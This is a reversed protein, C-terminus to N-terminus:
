KKVLKYGEAELLAKLNEFTPLTMAQISACIGRVKVSEQVKEQITAM